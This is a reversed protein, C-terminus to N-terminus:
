KRASQTVKFKKKIPKHRSFPNLKISLSIVTIAVPPTFKWTHAIDTDCQNDQSTCQIDVKYQGPTFFVICCEHYASGQEALEPLIVKSAGASALRTELRYNNVGNQHDQYFQVALCVQQLSRELFNHVSIGLQLCQGAHCSLEEQPKVQQDNLTVEWQLPSMRVLDLMEQTLTIGKLSVRGRTDSTLIHWRLDVSSAIHESCVQDLELREEASIKGGKYLKTLKSLPCRNVPVPIRCSENGEIVICKSSTYQLEIEHSTSNAIDLVLYFQSNTEAPLVDWNTIQVSPLMEVCLTVCSVRCYGSELGAGGSYRLKLQGELMKSNNVVGLKSFPSRTSGLSSGSRSSTGSRFSSTLESRRTAQDRGFTPSSLRSPLSSPGSLFSVPQSGYATSGADPMLFDALSYLYITFSATAGPQLPLQAQLNEQSWQFVQQQVSPELASHVTVEVMEIPLDGVNSLTVNCEASEGAYLSINTSTVVTLMEGLSGSSASKPLSTLVQMKPLAPIVDVSYQPHPFGGISKLKCNSKVGLTHTSYGLVELEGPEKPTGSLLVPHPGSESPLSLSSPNSEFVAGNTLLRMNLVKLEFPLPNYLEMAVECVDGEVWLYDMKSSTVVNKRELSGFHIPTFLFPGSDEKLKEIKQPRFQPELNQLAFS